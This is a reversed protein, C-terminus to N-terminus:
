EGRNKFKGCVNSYDDYPPIKYKTYETGYTCSWMECNECNYNCKKGCYIATTIGCIRDTAIFSLIFIIFYLINQM